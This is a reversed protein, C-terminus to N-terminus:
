TNPSRATANRSASSREIRATLRVAASARKPFRIVTVGTPGDEYSGIGVEIAPWDFTLVPGDISTTAVLKDQDAAYASMSGVIGITAVAAVGAAVVTSRNPSM